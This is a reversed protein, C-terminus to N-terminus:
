CVLGRPVNEAALGEADREPPVHRADGNHALLDRELENAHTPSSSFRATRRTRWSSRTAASQAAHRPSGVETAPLYSPRPAWANCAEAEWERTLCRHRLRLCLCPSPCRMPKRLRLPEQNGGQWVAANFCKEMRSARPPAADSRRNLYLQRTM